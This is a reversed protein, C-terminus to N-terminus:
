EAQVEEKQVEEKPAEETSSDAKGKKGKTKLFRIGAAVAILMLIWILPRYWLWAIAIVLVSWALGGVFCVLGVGAGVISALFPVVKLLTSLIEFMSKLGGIVLIVGLLRLLRTIGSNQAHANAFMTDMSVTGMEVSLFTKGNSATFQEFTDNVVQAIISIDAPVVKTFTVKVDGIQPNAESRGFYIQNGQVHVVTAETPTGYTAMTARITEEYSALTEPSLNIEVPASGRISSVMSSPLRYGGFSVNSALSTKSEIATLIYNSSRYEPDAFDQSRIPESVWGPSYTYTTITEESGGWNEKTETEEREWYQYYEVKRDLAIARESVGYLEDTLVDQTDAFATAHILKGNLATEVSAVNEVHIAVGEAEQLSKKTAVFNGENWFLLVTGAIFCILGTLIGKFSNSVRKGYGTTTRTTYAM